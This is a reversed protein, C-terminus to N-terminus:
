ALINWLVLSSLSVLSLCELKNPWNRLWPSFSTNQILVRAKGVFMLSPRFAQPSFVCLSITFIRLNHGCFNPGSAIEFKFKAPLVITVHGKFPVVVSLLIVSLKIASLM